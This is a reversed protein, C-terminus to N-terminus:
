PPPFSYNELPSIVFIPSAAAQVGQSYHDGGGGFEVICFHFAYSPHQLASRISCGCGFGGGRLTARIPCGSAEHIVLIICLTPRRFFHNSEPYLTSNLIFTRSPSPSPPDGGISLSLSSSSPFRQHNMLLSERISGAGSKKSNSAKILRTVRFFSYLVRCFFFSLFFLACFKGTECSIGWKRRLMRWGGWRRGGSMWVWGMGRWRRTSVRWRARWRCSLMLGLHRRPPQMRPSRPWPRM